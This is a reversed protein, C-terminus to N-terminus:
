VPDGILAPCEHQGHGAGACQGCDQCRDHRCHGCLARQVTTCKCPDGVVPPNRRARYAVWVAIVIAALVTMEAKAVIQGTLFQLSGFALQLFLLSDIALGVANSAILAPLLGQRRLRDYVLFDAGEAILFSAASAWAIRTSTALNAWVTGHVLDAFAPAGLLYSILSGIGIAALITKRSTLEHAIDRLVLALGVTFVGAPAYLGWGFLGADVPWTHFQTVLINAAPITAIYAALTTVTRLRM